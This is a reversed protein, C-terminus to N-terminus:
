KGRMERYQRLSMSAYDSSEMMKTASGARAARGAIKTKSQIAKLKDAGGIAAVAALIESEAKTKAKAKAQELETELTDIRERLEELERVMEEMGEDERIEVIVGDVVVIVRGDPMRHEGDPSANDGVQPEGEEREVNLTIGDETTLEMAVAADSDKRMGMAVMLDRMAKMAKSKNMDILKPKGDDQKKASKPMEIASVLGLRKAEDADIWKDESMLALLEQRDAGTREEYVDLFRESESDLDDAIKRLDASRYAGSLTYEPVYPDHICFKAHPKATRNEKAAALLVITAMSACQGDVSASIDKGTARLADYIAWGESVSGGLCNIHMDIHGDDDPISEIFENVSKFCVSDNIGFFCNIAAEEGDVITSFIRLIAMSNEKKQLVLM